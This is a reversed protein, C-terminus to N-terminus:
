GLGAAVRRQPLNREQQSALLALHAHEGRAPWPPDVRDPEAQDPNKVHGARDDPEGANVKQVLRGDYIQFRVDGTEVPRGALRAGAPVVANRDAIADRGRLEGWAVPRISM